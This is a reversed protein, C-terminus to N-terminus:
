DNERPTITNNNNNNNDVNSMMATNFKLGFFWIFLLYKDMMHLSSRFLILKTWYDKTTTMTRETSCVSFRFENFLIYPVFTLVYKLKNSQSAFDVLLVLLCLSAVTFLLSSQVTHPKHIKLFAFTFTVVEEEKEEEEKKM